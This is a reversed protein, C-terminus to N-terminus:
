VKRNICNASNLCSLLEVKQEVLTLRDDISKIAVAHSKSESQIDLQTIRVADLTTAISAITKGMADTNTMRNAIATTITTNKLLSIILYILGCTIVFFMLSISPSYTIIKGLKIVSNTDINISPM